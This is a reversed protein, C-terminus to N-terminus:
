RDGTLEMMRRGMFSKYMNRNICRPTSDIVKWDIYHIRMSPHHIWDLYTWSASRVYQFGRQECNLVIQKELKPSVASINFEVVYAVREGIFFSHVLDLGDAIDKELRSRTYDNFCGSGNTPKGTYSKPKAEKSKGNVPDIADRGHKGYLPDYGAILVSIAERITSSNPDSIYMKFLEESVPDLALSPNGLARDLLFTKLQESIL